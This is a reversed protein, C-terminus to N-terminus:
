DSILAANENTIPEKALLDDELLSNGQLRGNM